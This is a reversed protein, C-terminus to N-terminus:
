DYLFDQNLNNLYDQQPQKSSPRIPTKSTSRLAQKGVGGAKGTGRALFQKPKAAFGGSPSKTEKQEEQEDNM